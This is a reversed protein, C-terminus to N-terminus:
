VMVSKFYMLNLYNSGNLGNQSILTIHIVGPESSNASVTVDSQSTFGTNNASVLEINDADYTIIYDMASINEANKMQLFCYATSGGITVTNNTFYLTPSAQAYAPVASILLAVICLASIIKNLIKM